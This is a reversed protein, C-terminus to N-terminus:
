TCVVAFLQRFVQVVNMQHINNNYRGTFLKEILRHRRATDCVFKVALVNGYARVIQVPIILGGDDVSVSSSACLASTSGSLLLSAGVGPMEGRTNQRRLKVEQEKTHGKSSIDVFKSRPRRWASRSQGARASSSNKGLPLWSRFFVPKFMVMRFSIQCTRTPPKSSESKRLGAVFPSRM